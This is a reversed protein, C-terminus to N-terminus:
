SRSRRSPGSPAACQGTIQMSTSHRRITMSGPSWITWCRQHEDEFDLTHGFGPYDRYCKDPTDLRDFWRQTAEIDVIPDAGAQMVLLPAKLGREKPLSRDWLFSEIYFHATAERLAHPDDRIFQVYRPSNTYMEPTLPLPARWHPAVVRGVAVRLKAVPSLDPKTIVGPCLLVLGACADSERLAYAVAPKAGWCNGILFLPVGPHEQESLDAFRQVDDLLRERSGFFGRPGATLGSGRRDPLYVSYGRRALEAAADTYWGSHSQIGHLYVIRGRERDAAAPYYRYALPTGDSAILSRVPSRVEQDTGIMTM